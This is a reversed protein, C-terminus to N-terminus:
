PALISRSRFILFETTLRESQNLYYARQQVFRLIWLFLGPSGQTVGTGRHCPSLFLHSSIPLCSHAFFVEVLLHYHSSKRFLDLHYSDHDVIIFKIRKIGEANRMGLLKIIPRTKYQWPRLRSLQRINNSVTSVKIM